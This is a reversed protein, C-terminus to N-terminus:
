AGITVLKMKRKTVDVDERDGPEHSDVIHDGLLYETPLNLFERCYTIHPLLVPSNAMHQQFNSPEYLHRLLMFEM